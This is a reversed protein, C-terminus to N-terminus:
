AGKSMLLARVTMDHHQGTRTRQGGPIRFTLLTVSCSLPGVWRVKRLARSDGRVELIGFRMLM